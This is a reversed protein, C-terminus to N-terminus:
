ELESNKLIFNNLESDKWGKRKLDNYLFLIKIKLIRKFSNYFTYFIIKKQFFGISSIHRISFYKFMSYQCPPNLMPFYRTKKSFLSFIFLIFVQSNFTLYQFYACTNCCSHCYQLGLPSAVLATISGSTSYYM